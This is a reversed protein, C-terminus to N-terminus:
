VHEKPLARKRTKAADKNVPPIVVGTNVQKPIKPTVSLLQQELGVDEISKHAELQKDNILNATPETKITTNDYIEQEGYEEQMVDKMLQLSSLMNEAEKVKIDDFAEIGFKKAVARICNFVTEPPKNEINAVAGEILCLKIAVDLPLPSIIDKIILMRIYSSQSISSLRSMHARLADGVEVSTKIVKRSM